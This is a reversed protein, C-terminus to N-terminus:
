FSYRNGQSFIVGDTLAIKLIITNEDSENVHGNSYWSAFADRLKGALVANEQAGIWGLDEGKGHGTFWEGCLGVLPCAAIQRMKNSLRYTVCYFAGDIYLANVARVSPVGNEQTALAILSDKGFRECFLAHIQPIM